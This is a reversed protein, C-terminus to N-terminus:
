AMYPTCWLAMPVKTCVVLYETSTTFVVVAFSCLKTRAVSRASNTQVLLVKVACLREFPTFTHPSSTCYSSFLYFSLSLTIINFIILMLHVFIQCSISGHHLEAMALRM